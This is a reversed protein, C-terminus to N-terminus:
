MFSLKGPLTEMHLPHACHERTLHSPAAHSALTASLVTATGSKRAGAPHYNTRFPALGDHYLQRIESDDLVRDFCYVDAIPGKMRSSAAWGGFNMDNNTHNQNFSGTRVYYEDGNLWHGWRRAGTNTLALHVWEGTPISQTGYHYETSGGIRNDVRIKGSSKMVRVHLGGGGVGPRYQHWVGRHGSVDTIRCRMLLTYPQAPIVPKGIDIHDNSGDFIISRRGYHDGWDDATMYGPTGHNGHGSYDRM